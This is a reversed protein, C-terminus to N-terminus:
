CRLVRTIESKKGLYRVRWSELEKTDTIGELEQLAKAKLEEALSFSGINQIGHNQSGGSRLIHGSGM